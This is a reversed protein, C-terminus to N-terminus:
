IETYGLLVEAKLVSDQQKNGPPWDLHSANTGFEIEITTATTDM